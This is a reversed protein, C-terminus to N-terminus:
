RNREAEKKLLAIDVVKPMASNWKQQSQITLLVEKVWQNWFENLIYQVRWHKRSYIDPTIRRSTADGIKIENGVLKNSETLHPRQGPFLGSSILKQYDSVAGQLIQCFHAKKGM